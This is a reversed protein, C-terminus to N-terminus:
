STFTLSLFPRAIQMLPPLYRISVPHGLWSLGSYFSCLTLVVQTSYFCCPIVVFSIGILGPSIAPQDEWDNLSGGGGVAVAPAVGFLWPTAQAMLGDDDDFELISLSHNPCHLHTATNRPLSIGPM